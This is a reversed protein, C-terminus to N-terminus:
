QESHGTIAVIYPQEIKNEECYERIEVTAQYGDKVPMSCDMFILCCRNGSNIIEKFQDVARQGNVEFDIYPDLLKQDRGMNRLTGNFIFQLAKLNFYEDDVIMIRSFSMHDEKVVQHQDHRTWFKIQKLNLSDDEDYEECIVSLDTERKIVVNTTKRRIPNHNRVAFSSSKKSEHKEDLMFTFTFKTGVELKSQVTINGGFKTVIKKSIYLGLGVGEANVEKSTELFGYLKFLKKM